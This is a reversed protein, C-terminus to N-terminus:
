FTCYTAGKFVHITNDIVDVADFDRCFRELPCYGPPPPPPPTGYRPTTTRPGMTSPRGGSGGHGADAGACVFVIRNVESSIEM